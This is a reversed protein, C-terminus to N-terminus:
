CLTNEQIILLSPSAKRNEWSTHSVNFEGPDLTTVFDLLLTREAAGEPHGPYLTLSVLGGPAVLSLASKLSALTTERLTTKDKEGGPLYGLNYVILRIPHQESLPPFVTHSQCFFHVNPAGARSRASQIAEEQIDLAIVKGTAGVLESLKLTDHGNGCTADIAWDGEQVWQDWLLHAHQLHSFRLLSM